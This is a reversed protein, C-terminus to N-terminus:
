KFKPMEVATLASGYRDGFATLVVILQQRWRGLEGDLRTRDAASLDGNEPLGVAIEHVVQDVDTELAMMAWQAQFMAHYRQHWGFAQVGAALFGVVAIGSVLLMPNSVERDKLEIILLATAVVVTWTIGMFWNKAWVADSSFKRQLDKVRSRLLVVRRWLEPSM